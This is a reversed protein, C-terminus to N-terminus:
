RAAADNRYVVGGKMVFAVRELAAVDTLPDGNVAIIDAFLGPKIAGVQDAAGLAEAANVTAQRVIDENTVGAERLLAFEKLSDSPGVDTGFAMKVGTKYALSVAAMKKPWMMMAKAGTTPRLREAEAARDFAMKAVILTPVFYNGTAKMMRFTTEDGLTGHEITDVGLRTSAEMAEKGQAHAAVKLGLAHATEVAAKIEEDTMLQHAPNDGVSLVGGSPMIKIVDAGRRGLERVAKRVEDPGDAVSSTWHPNTTEPDEANRPDSHGGSPGIPELSAWLRPGTIVGTNIARRLAVDSGRQAGLSRVSTFGQMLFARTTVTSALVGDLATRPHGDPDVTARGGGLGIHVHTNILGPMVTSGSLDIIEAGVPRVFGSQVATIRDDTVLVSVQAQPRGSGDILRGAHIVLDKAAAQGASALLVALSAGFFMVRKM